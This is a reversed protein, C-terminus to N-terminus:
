CVTASTRFSATPVTPFNLQVFVAVLTGAALNLPGIEASACISTGPNGINVITLGNPPSITLSAPTGCPTTVLFFTVNVSDITDVFKISATLKTITTQQCTLYAIAMFGRLMITPSIFSQGQGIFRSAQLTEIADSFHFEPKFQVIPLPRKKPIEDSDSDCNYRAM